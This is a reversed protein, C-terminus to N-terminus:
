TCPNWGGGGSYSSLRELFTGLEGGMVRPSSGHLLFLIITRRKLPTGDTAGLRPCMGFCFSKVQIFCSM